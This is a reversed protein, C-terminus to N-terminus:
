WGHVLIRSNYFWNFNSQKVTTYNGLTLLQPTNPNKPTFLEFRVDREVDFDPVVEDATIYYLCRTTLKICHKQQSLYSEM